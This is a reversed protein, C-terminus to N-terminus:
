DIIRFGTQRPHSILREKRVHSVRAGRPGVDVWELLASVHEEEGQLLAEVAGDERNRVWGDVRHHIANEKMTVRFSVGQVRGLVELRLTVRAM